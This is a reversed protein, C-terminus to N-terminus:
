GFAMSTPQSLLTTKNGLLARNGALMGAPGVDHEAVTMRRENALVDIAM